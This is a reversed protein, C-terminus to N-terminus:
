PPTLGPESPASAQGAAETHQSDRPAELRLDATIEDLMELTTAKKELAFATLLLNDCMINIMRPIGQSRVHIAALVDPPFVTQEQMGAKALRSQIYARTEAEAFPRLEFRLVIRQKLQRLDPADLRRDLEPQGAFVIQLLKGHRNELNSLMRIEELVDRSLDHAEDLILATTSEKSAQELLLEQLAVLVETKSDPKCSLELDYAVLEFFQDVSLRSHVISAFQIGQENMFDRLCELMTTKGTGVEGTLAVFGKRNQVCYILNALAEEHQPSRFLYAPDPTLDFPNGAFGFFAKYM